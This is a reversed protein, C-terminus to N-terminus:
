LIEKIEDYASLLIRRSEEYSNKFWSEFIETILEKDFEPDDWDSYCLGGGIAYEAFYSSDSGNLEADAPTCDSLERIFDDWIAHEMFFDQLVKFATVPAAEYISDIFQGSLSNVVNLGASTVWWQEYRDFEEPTLGNEELFSEWVEEDEYRQNMENRSRMWNGSALAFYVPYIESLKEVDIESGDDNSDDSEQNSKLDNLEKELDEITVAVYPNAFYAPHHSLKELYIEAQDIDENHIATSFLRRCADASGSQVAFEFSEIAEEFGLSEEIKRANLYLIIPENPNTAGSIYREAAEFDKQDLFVYVLQEISDLHGDDALDSWIDVCEQPNGENWLKLGEQFKQDMEKSNM